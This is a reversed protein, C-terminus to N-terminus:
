AAADTITEGRWRYVQRLRAGDVIMDLDYFQTAIQSIPGSGPDISHDIATVDNLTYYEPPCGAEDAPVRVTEGDYPGGLHEVEVYQQAEVSV